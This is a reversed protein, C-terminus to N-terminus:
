RAGLWDRFAGAGMPRAFHYGQAYLCGLSKLFAAHDATEVGEAVVALGLSDALAVIARVIAQQDASENVTRVFSQDIKLTNIPLQRLYAMSSYGTGFDDIAITAGLDRMATL